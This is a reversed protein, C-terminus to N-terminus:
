RLVPYAHSKAESELLMVRAYEQDTCHRFAQIQLSRLLQAMQRDPELLAGRLQWVLQEPLANNAIMPLGPSFASYQLISLGELCAPTQQGLYAFTVSDIAAIDAEGDRVMKLSNEHSGSYAVRAFFRGGRALPAVAHRLVNMGSNSHMDNAAAVRGRADALAIIRSDERVVIVSSYDSGHCGPFDYCPTAILKVRHRLQTMYPYGCTQSLLMDPQEWFEPLPPARVLEVAGRWGSARLVDVLTELVAEYGLQIAASVNYMPLAIKWTM